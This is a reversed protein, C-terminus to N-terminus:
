QAEKYASEIMSKAPHNAGSYGVRPLEIDWFTGLGDKRGGVIPGTYWSPTWLAARGQWWLCDGAKVQESKENRELYLACQSGDKGGCNVWVRDQLHLVEIVNGIM